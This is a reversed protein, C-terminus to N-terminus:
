RTNYDTQSPMRAIQKIYLHFQTICFSLLSLDINYKVYISHCTMNALVYVCKLKKLLISMTQKQWVCRFIFKLMFQASSEAGTHRVGIVLLSFPTTQEASASWAQDMLVSTVLIGLMLRPQEVPFFCCKVLWQFLAIKINHINAFAFLHYRNYQNTGFSTINTM